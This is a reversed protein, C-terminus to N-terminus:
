EVPELGLEGFPDRGVAAAVRRLLALLDLAPQAGALQEPHDRGVRELQPDVDALEVGRDAHREGPM